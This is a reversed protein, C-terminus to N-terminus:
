CVKSFRWGQSVLDHDIWELIESSARPLGVVFPQFIRAFIFAAVIHRVLPIRWRPTSYWIQARQKVRLYESAKQGHHGLDALSQLIFEVQSTTLSQGANNRSNRAMWNEVETKLEGFNQIYFDEDRLPGQQTEAMAMYARLQEADTRHFDSENQSKHLAENLGEIQKEAIM